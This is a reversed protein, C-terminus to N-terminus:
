LINLRQQLQPKYKSGIPVVNGSITAAENDINELFNINIIYSRHVRVFAPNLKLKEELNKMTTYTTYVKNKLHVKVYDGLAEVYLLDKYPIKHLLGNEKIFIYELTPTSIDQAPGNMEQVRDIASLFKKYDVPKVLYHVVKFEFARAAYQEKSTVLIV